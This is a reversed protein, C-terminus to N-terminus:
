PSMKKRLAERARATRRRYEREEYLSYAIGLPGYVVAIEIWGMIPNPKPRWDTLQAFWYEVLYGLAAWLSLAGIIAFITIM